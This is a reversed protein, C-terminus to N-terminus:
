NNEQSKQPEFEWWLNYGFGEITRYFTKSLFYNNGSTGINPKKSKICYRELNYIGWGSKQLARGETPFSVSIKLLSTPRRIIAAMVGTKKPIGEYVWIVRIEEKVGKVFNRNALEVGIGDYQKGLESKDLKSPLGNICKFSNPVFNELPHFFRFEKQSNHIAKVMLTQKCIFRVTNETEEEIDFHSEESIIKFYFNKNIKNDYIFVLFLVIFFVFTGAAATLAYVKWYNSNQSNSFLEKLLVIINFAVSLFAAYIVGNKKLFNNFKEEQSEQEDM